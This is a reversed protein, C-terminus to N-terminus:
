QKKMMRMQELYEKAKKNRPDLQLAHRWLKAAEAPDGEMYRCLGLNIWVSIADPYAKALASFISAADSYQKNLFLTNAYIMAAQMDGPAAEAAAACYGVASATDKKVLMSRCIIQNAWVSGPEAVLMRRAIGIADDPRDTEVYSMSLKRLVRPIDPELKQVKELYEAAQAYDGNRGYITGLNEYPVFHNPDARIARVYLDKAEEVRGTKEYESGLNNLAITNFPNKKITDSWLTESNRWVKNRQFTAYSFTVTLILLGILVITTSGAKRAEVAESLKGAAVAVGLCFAASAVYLYRDAMGARFQVIHLVPLLSVVFWGAYFLVGRRRRAAVVVAGAIMLVVLWCGLYLPDTLGEPLRIIYHTSLNVPAFLLGAYRLLLFGTTMQTMAFSGGLHGSVVNREALVQMQTWVFLAGPLAFVALGAIGKRLSERREVVALWVFALGPLIVATPKALLAATWLLISCLLAVGSIALSRSRVFSIFTALSAFLLAASLPEKRAALWAVAEVHVPHVAFLLVAWLAVGRGWPGCRFLLLLLVCAAVHLLINGLHYSWASYGSIRYNLAWTLATLPLNVDTQSGPLYASLMEGISRADLTRITKNNLILDYDDYTVFDNGFTNLYPIVAALVVFVCAAWLPLESGPLDSKRKIDSNM